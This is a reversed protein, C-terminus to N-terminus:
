KKNNGKKNTDKSDKDSSASDTTKTDETSTATPPPLVVDTTDKEDDEKNVDATASISKSTLGTKSAPTAADEGEKRVLEKVKPTALKLVAEPVIEGANYSVGDIMCSTKAYYKAMIYKNNLELLYSSLGM